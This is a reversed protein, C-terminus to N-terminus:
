INAYKELFATICRTCQAFVEEFGHIDNVRAKHYYDTIGNKNLVSLARHDPITGTHFGILAASDVEWKDTLNM